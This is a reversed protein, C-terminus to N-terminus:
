SIGWQMEIWAGWHPAVQRREGTATQKVYKLGRVGTPHSRGAHKNDTQILWKM